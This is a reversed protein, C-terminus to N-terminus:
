HGDSQLGIWHTLPLEPAVLSRKSNSSRPLTCRQQAPLPRSATLLTPEKLVCLFIKAIHRNPKGHHRSTPRPLNCYPRHSDTRPHVGRSAFSFSLFPINLQIAFHKPPNFETRCSRHLRIMAHMGVSQNVVLCRFWVKLSVFKSTGCGEVASFVM